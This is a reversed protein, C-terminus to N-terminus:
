VLAHVPLPIRLALNNPDCRPKFPLRMHWAAVTDHHYIRYISYGCSVPGAVFSRTAVLLARCYGTM